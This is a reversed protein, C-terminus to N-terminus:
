VCLNMCQLTLDNGGGGGELFITSNSVKEKKQYNWKKKGEKLFSFFSFGM